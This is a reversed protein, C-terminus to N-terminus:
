FIANSAGKFKGGRKGAERQNISRIFAESMQIVFAKEIGKMKPETGELAFRACAKFIRGCEEDSMEYFSRAQSEWVTFGKEDAM